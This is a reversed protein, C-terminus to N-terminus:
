GVWERSSVFSMRVGGEGERSVTESKAKGEEGIGEVYASGGLMAM